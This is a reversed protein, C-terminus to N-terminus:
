AGEIIIKAKVKDANKETIAGDLAAPILADAEICLLEDNTVPEAGKFGKLTKAEEYYKVLAPIDLGAGNYIGGSVDSVAVIKAGREYAGIAAHSGVNGFGQIAISLGEFPRGIKECLARLVYICGLGTASVRGLSGGIELPKGTVVGPVSYGEKQSYTDMIWAMTQANTGVDPAPIDIGPGIFPHIENTYRRTLAQLEKESLQSPDVTVGGKAGGLPLELVANKFTMLMALAAVESLTVGPHYRIGGKCPGLTQNHQVRYGNFVKITDDDMRVPVAVILAKRPKSLRAIADPDLSINKAVRTINNLSNKYLHGEVLHNM